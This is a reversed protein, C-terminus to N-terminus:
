LSQYPFRVVYDIALLLCLQLFTNNNLLSFTYDTCPADNIIHHLRRHKNLMQILTLLNEVMPLDYPCLFKNRETKRIVHLAANNAEHSLFFFKHKHPFSQKYSSHYLM